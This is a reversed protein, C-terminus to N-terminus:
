FSIARSSNLHVFFFLFVKMLFSGFSGWTSRDLCEALSTGTERLLYRVKAWEKVKSGIRKTRWFYGYLVMHDGVGHGSTRVVSCSPQMSRRLDAEPYPNGGAGPFEEM